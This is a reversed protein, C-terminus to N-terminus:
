NNLLLTLKERAEQETDFVYGENNLNTDLWNWNNESDLRDLGGAVVVYPFEYSSNAERNLAFVVLQKNNEYVEEYSHTESRTSILKM